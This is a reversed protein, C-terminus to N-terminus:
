KVEVQVDGGGLLLCGQTVANTIQEIWNSRVKTGDLKVAFISM